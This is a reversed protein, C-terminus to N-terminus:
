FLQQRRWVGPLGYFQVGQTPATAEASEAPSPESSKKRSGGSYEIEDLVIVMASHKGGTQKDERSHGRGSPRLPQYVFRGETEDEGAAPVTPWLSERVPQDM